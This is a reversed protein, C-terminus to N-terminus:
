LLENVSVDLGEGALQIGAPLDRGVEGPPQADNGPGAVVGDPLFVGIM